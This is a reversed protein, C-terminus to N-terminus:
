AALESTDDEDVAPKPPVPTVPPVQPLKPDFPDDLVDAIFDADQEENTVISNAESLSAIAQQVTQFTFYKRVRIQNGVENFELDDMLQRMLFIGRGHTRILNEPVTPDPLNVYDFGRGQDSVQLEFYTSTLLYSLEIPVAPDTRNGHLWANAITENLALRIAYLTMNDVDFSRVEEMIKDIVGDMEGYNISMAIATCGQIEMTALLIDDRNAGPAWADLAASIAIKLSEPDRKGHERIVDCLREVGFLQGKADKLESVGDTYFVLKDGPNLDIQAGEYEEDIALGVPLGEGDLLECTGDAIRYLVPMVHGAKCYTMTMDNLNIRAYFATAFWANDNDNRLQTLVNKNVMEMVKAPPRLENSYNRFIWLMSFALLSAAVGKSAVDGIVVGTVNHALRFIDYFDGALEGAPQFSASAEIGEDLYTMPIRDAQFQKATALEGDRRKDRHSIEQFLRAKQIAAALQNAFTSLFQVDDHDFTAPRESLFVLVGMVAGSESIPLAIYSAFRTAHTPDFADTEPEWLDLRPYERILLPEGTAVVQHTWEFEQTHLHPPVQASGELAMIPRLHGSEKLCLLAQDANLFHSLETLLRPILHDFEFEGLLAAGLRNIKELQVRSRQTQALLKNKHLVVGLQQTLRVYKSLAAASFDGGHATILVFAAELEGQVTVPVICLHAEAFSQAYSSGRSDGVVTARTLRVKKHIELRRLEDLLGGESFDCTEFLPDSAHVLEWGYRAQYEFLGVLMLGYSRQMASTLFELNREAVDSRSAEYVLTNLISLETNQQEYNVLVERYRQNSDELRRSTAALERYKVRLERSMQNFAEALVGVETGSKVDVTQDFEGSSMRRVASTLVRLPSTLTRMFIAFLILVISFAALLYGTFRHTLELAASLIPAQSRYLVLVDPTGQIPVLCVLQRGEPIDVVGQLKRRMTLGKSVSLPGYVKQIASPLILPLDLGLPAAGDIVPDLSETNLVYARVGHRMTFNNFTETYGESSHHTDVLEVSNHVLNGPSAVSDALEKALFTASNLEDNMAIRIAIDVVQQGMAKSFLATGYLLMALAGLITLVSLSGPRSAIGPRPEPTSM